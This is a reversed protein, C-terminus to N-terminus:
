RAGTMMRIVGDVFEYREPQAREWELFEELTWPKRALGAM